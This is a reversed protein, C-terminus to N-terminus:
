WTLCEFNWARQFQQIELPIKFNGLGPTWFELIGLVGPIKCNGRPIESNGRGPKWFELIGVERSNQFKWRSHQFKRLRAVLIGFNWTGQFKPIEVHFTPIKGQRADFMGFNWAGQFKPIEM